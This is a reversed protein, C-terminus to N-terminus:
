MGRLNHLSPTRFVDDSEARTMSRYNLQTEKSWTSNSFTRPTGGTLVNWFDSKSLPFKRWDRNPIRITLHKLQSMRTLIFGINSEHDEIAQWSNDFELTTLNPFTQWWMPNSLSSRHCNLHLSEVSPMVCLGLVGCAEWYNVVSLKQLVPFQHQYFSALPRSNVAFAFTIDDFDITLDKLAQLAPLHWSTPNPSDRHDLSINISLSTLTNALMELWLSVTNLMNHPAMGLFQAEMTFSLHTVQIGTAMMRRVNDITDPTVYFHDIYLNRFHLFNKRVLLNLIWMEPPSRVAPGFPIRFTQLDTVRALMRTILSCKRSIQTPRRHTIDICKLNAFSSPMEEVLHRNIRIAESTNVHLEELQPSNSLLIVTLNAVEPSM